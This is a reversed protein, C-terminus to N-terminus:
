QAPANANPRQLALAKTEASLERREKPLLTPYTQVNRSREASLHTPETKQSKHRSYGFGGGLGIGYRLRSQVYACYIILFLKKPHCNNRLMRYSSNPLFFSFSISVGKPEQISGIRRGLLAHFYFTSCNM